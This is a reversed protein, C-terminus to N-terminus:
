PTEHPWRREQRRRELLTEHINWSRCFGLRAPTGCLAAGAAILSFDARATGHVTAGQTPILVGYAKASFAAWRIGLSAGGGWAADPLTGLELLARLDLSAYLVDSRRTPLPAPPPAAPPKSAVPDGERAATVAREPERAVESAPPETDDSKPRSAELALGVAAVLADVVEGCTKASIRREQSGERERVALLLEFGRGSETVRAEFDIAPLSELTTGLDHALRERVAEPGACAPPASWTLELASAPSPSLWGLLLCAWGVVPLGHARPVGCELRRFSRVAIASVRPAYVRARDPREQRERGLLASTIWTAVVSRGSARKPWLQDPRFARRASPTTV